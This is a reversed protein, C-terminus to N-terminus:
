VLTRFYAMLRLMDERIAFLEERWQQVDALGSNERLSLEVVAQMAIEFLKLGRKLSAVIFGGDPHEQYAIGNLSGALKTGLSALSAFLDEAVADGDGDNRILGLMLCDYQVAFVLESCRKVLPHEVLGDESRVWDRHEVGYLVSPGVEDDDDDFLLDFDSFEDDDLDDYEIGQYGADDPSIWGMKRGIIEDFDPFGDFKEVIEQFKQESADSQRLIKEWEFEDLNAEDEDYGFDDDEVDGFGDDSFLDYDPQNEPSLQPEPPRWKPESIETISFDPTEIVVRGDSKSFWELYLLNAVRTPANKEPQLGSKLPGPSMEFVKVRRSATMDGVFGKQLDSLVSSEELAQARSCEFAIRCGAIDRLCDGQLDLQVPSKRGALWILGTTEGQKRNDIEGRAVFAGINFSM